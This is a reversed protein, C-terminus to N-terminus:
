CVLDMRYDDDKRLFIDERVELFYTMSTSNSLIDHLQFQNSTLLKLQYNIHYASSLYSPYASSSFSSNILSPSSSHVFKQEIFDWAFERAIRFCDPDPIACDNAPCILASFLISHVHM